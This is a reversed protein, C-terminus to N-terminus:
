PVATLADPPADPPVDPPVDMSRQMQSVRSGDLLKGVLVASDPSSTMNGTMEYSQSAAPSSFSTDSEASAGHILVLGVVLTLLLRKVFNNHKLSNNMHPLNSAARRIGLM